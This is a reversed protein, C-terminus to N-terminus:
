ASLLYLDVHYCSAILHGCELMTMWYEYSAGEMFHAISHRIENLAVFGGFIPEYYQTHSDLGHLLDSQVQSWGDERLGLM